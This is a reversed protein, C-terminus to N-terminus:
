HRDDCTSGSCVELRVAEGKARPAPEAMLAETERKGPEEATLTQESGCADFVPAVSLLLTLLASSRNM